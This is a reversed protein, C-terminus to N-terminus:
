NNESIEKLGTIPNKCINSNRSILKTAYDASFHAIEGKRNKYVFNTILWEELQKKNCGTIIDAEKFHRLAHALRTGNDMFYLPQKTNGGEILIRKLEEQQEKPFHDKLLHFVQNVAEPKFVVRNAKKTIAPHNRIPVREKEEQVPLEKIERPGPSFTGAEKEAELLLLQDEIADLIKSYDRKLNNDRIYEKIVIKAQVLDRKKGAYTESKDCLEYHAELVLDLFRYADYYRTEEEKEIEFYGEIINSTEHPNSLFREKRTGQIFDVDRIKDKKM